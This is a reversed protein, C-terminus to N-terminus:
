FAESVPIATIMLQSCLVQMSSSHSGLDGTVLVCKPTTGNQACAVVALIPLKDHAAENLDYTGNCLLAALNETTSYILDDCEVIEIASQEIAKAFDLDFTKVEKFVDKTVAIRETIAAQFLANVRNAGAASFDLCAELDLVYKIGGYQFM